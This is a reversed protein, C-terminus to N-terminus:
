ALFYSIKFILHKMRFCITDRSNWNASITNPWNGEEYLIAYADRDASASTSFLKNDWNRFLIIEKSDMYAGERFHDVIFSYGNWDFEGFYQELDTIGLEFINLSAVDSEIIRM